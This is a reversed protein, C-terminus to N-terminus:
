KLYEGLKQAIFKEIIQPSKRQIEEASITLMFRGSSWGDNKTRHGYEVYMAYETQNIVSVTYVDGNINVEGVQWNRRLTGTKVPTRKIVERLLRATLEKACDSIFVDLKNEFEVLNDRFKELERVDFGNRSM